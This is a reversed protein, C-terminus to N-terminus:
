LEVAAQARETDAYRLYVATTSLRAHRLTSQLHRINEGSELGLVARTHRLAHPHCLERAIGARQGLRNIIQRVHNTSLQNGPKTTATGGHQEGVRRTAAASLTCFLTTAGAPRVARYRRLLDITMESRVYVVGVKNGKGRVTLALLDGDEIKVDRDRLTVAESVRLGGRWMFEILLRNRLGTGTRLDPQAVLARVEDRTLYPRATSSEPM